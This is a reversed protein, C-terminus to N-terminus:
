MLQLSTLSNIDDPTQTLRQQFMRRGNESIGVGGLRSNLWTMFSSCCKMSDRKTLIVTNFLIKGAFSLFHNDERRLWSQLINKLLIWSILIGHNVTFRKLM